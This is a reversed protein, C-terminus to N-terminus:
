FQYDISNHQPWRHAARRVLGRALAGPDAVLTRLRPLSALTPVYPIQRM